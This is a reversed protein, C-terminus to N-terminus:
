SSRDWIVGEPTLDTDEDLLGETKSQDFWFQMLGPDVDLQTAPFSIRGLLDPPTETHDALLTRALEPNSELDGVAKDIARLFREAVEANEELWTSSAVIGSVAIEPVVEAWYSGIETLGADRGITLFPDAVGAAAVSGQQVAAVMDPFPVEVIEVQDPDVGQQRLWERLMMWEINFLGNVAVSKGILGSAERIEPDSTMLGHVPNEATIVSPVTVYRIDVGGTIANIVGLVDAGGMDVEGAEIAPIIVVGGTMPVLEVELHEDAFYGADQAQWLYVYTVVPLYAVRLSASTVDQSTETADTTNTPSETTESSGPPTTAQTSETMDSATTSDQQDLGGCASMAFALIAVSLMLRRPIAIM